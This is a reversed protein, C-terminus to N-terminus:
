DHKNAIAKAWRRCQIMHRVRIHWIQGWNGRCNKKRNSHAREHAVPTGHVHVGCVSYMCVCVDVFPVYMGNCFKWHCWFVLVDHNPMGVHAALMHSCWRRCSRCCWCQVYECANWLIDYSYPLSLFPRKRAHMCNYAHIHLQTQPKSCQMCFFMHICM